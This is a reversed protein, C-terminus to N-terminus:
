LPSAVHSHGVKWFRGPSGFHLRALITSSRYSWRSKMRSTAHWWPKNLRRKGDGRYGTFRMRTWINRLHITAVDTRITLFRSIRITHLFHRGPWGVARLRRKGKGPFRRRGRGFCLWKVGGVLISRNSREIESSWARASETVHQATNRAGSLSRVRVGHTTASFNM